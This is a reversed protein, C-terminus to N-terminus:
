DSRTPDNTVLCELTRHIGEIEGLWGQATARRKRDELDAELQDLRGLMSPNM